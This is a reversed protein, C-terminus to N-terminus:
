KLLIHALFAGGFGLHTQYRKSSNVEITVDNANIDSVPHTEELIHKANTFIVKKM